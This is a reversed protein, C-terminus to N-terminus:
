NQPDWHADSGTDRVLSDPLHREREELIALARTFEAQSLIAHAIELNPTTPFLRKWWQVSQLAGEPHGLRPSLSVRLLFFLCSVEM